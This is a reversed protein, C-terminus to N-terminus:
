AVTEAILRRIVQDVSDRWPPLRIGFDVELKACDLRSNAPRGAKTPFERTPIPEVRVPPEGLSNAVEFIAQAFTYWSTAGTANLAGQPDSGALHYIGGRDDARDRDLRQAVDLLADAIDLASTPSGYQDDVVSVCDRDRGLRLMTKVFNRGFPSYVWATRFILAGPHATRVAEEGALKSKGYVGIPNVPDSEVYPAPKTGDYVYDTSLHLLPLGRRAAAEALRGAGRANVAFAAEANDEADDVATYAAANIVITPRFVDAQAPLDHFSALDCDARGLALLPLGRAQAREALSRAVQGNRGIVLLRM